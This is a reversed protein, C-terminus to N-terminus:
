ARETVSTRESHITAGGPGQSACEKETPWEREMPWVCVREPDHGAGGGGGTM